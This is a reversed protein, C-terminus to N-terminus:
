PLAAGRSATMPLNGLTRALAEIRPSRVALRLTQCLYIWQCLSRSYIARTVPPLRPM